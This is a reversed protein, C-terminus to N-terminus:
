NLDAAKEISINNEKKVFCAVKILLGVTSLRGSRITNGTRLTLSSSFHKIVNLDFPGDFRLYV